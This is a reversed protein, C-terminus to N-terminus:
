FPTEDPQEPNPNPNPRPLHSSPEQSTGRHPQSPGAPDRLLNRHRIGQYGGKFYTRDPNLNKKWGETPEDLDELTFKGRTVADRLVRSIANLDSLPQM